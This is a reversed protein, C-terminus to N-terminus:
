KREEKGFGNRHVVERAMRLSERSEIVNIIVFVLAAIITLYAMIISTTYGPDRILWLWWNGLGYWFDAMYVELILLVINIYWLIKIKDLM